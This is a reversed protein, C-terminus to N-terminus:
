LSIDLGEMLRFAARANDLFRRAAEDSKRRPVCGEVSEIGTHVDVGAPGVARVAAAVNDPNLGGALIVPLASEKVLTRSVTWDHTLGTAGQAGTAPDQTDTIFADVFPTHSDRITRLRQLVEPEPSVVLSKILFIDPAISRIKRTVAPPVDAHLQLATAGTKRCLDVAAQADREYTIVVADVHGPLSAIIKAAEEESTDQPHHDLRLPFGLGDAGLGALLLAEETDVIGAIQTFGSFSRGPRLKRM